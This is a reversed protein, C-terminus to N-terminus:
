NWALLGKRKPKKEVIFVVPQANAGVVGDQKLQALTAAVDAALKGERRKLRKVQKSSKRGLDVLVVDTKDIAATNSPETSPSPAKTTM